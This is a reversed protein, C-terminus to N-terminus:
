SIRTRTHKHTYKNLTNTQKTWAHDIYMKTKSQKNKNAKQKNKNKM